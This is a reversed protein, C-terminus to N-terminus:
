KNEGSTIIETVVLGAFDAIENQLDNILQPIEKEFINRPKIGNKQISKAVAYAQRELIKEPPTDPKQNPLNFVIARNKIWEKIVNIPPMKDRYTFPTNYPKNENGNVGKDQYILYPYALISITKEDERKITIDSMKGTVNMGENEINTKVRDIFDLCVGEVTNLSEETIVESPDTGLTDLNQLKNELEVKRSAKKLTAM